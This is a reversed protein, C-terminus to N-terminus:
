KELESYVAQVNERSRTMAYNKYKAGFSLAAVAEDVNKGAAHSAKVSALFDKTFDIYERFDKMSMVRAANGRFVPSRGAVVYDIDAQMLVAFAKELTEPLAIASGGNATDIIPTAKDPFLEGLYAASYTPIVAVTDGNTHGAGFHYLEIRNAGEFLSLTDTFTKNPLFKANAGQFASMRAMAAKANEHAVITTASAFDSNGGSYEADPHTNIITTIPEQTILELKGAIAKGMGPAKTNILIVGHDSEFSLSHGGGGNLLYLTSYTAAFPNRLKKENSLGPMYQINVDKAPAQEQARQVGAALCLAFATMIVRKLV